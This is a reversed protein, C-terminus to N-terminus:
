IADIIPHNIFRSSSTSHRNDVSVSTSRSFRGLAMQRGYIGGSRIQSRALATATPFRRIVVQVIAHNEWIIIHGLIYPLLM